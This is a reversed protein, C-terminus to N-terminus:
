KDGVNYVYNFGVVYCGPPVDKTVVAGAGVICGSRLVVNGLVVANANIRVNDEIMPSGLGKRDGLTVNQGIFVNEGLKVNANIVVGVGNHGFVTSKPVFCAIDRRTFVYRFIHKWSHYETKILEKIKFLFSKKKKVYDGRFFKVKEKEMPSCMDYPKDFLDDAYFDLDKVRMGKEGKM